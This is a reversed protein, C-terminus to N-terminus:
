YHGISLSISDSTDPLCSLQWDCHPIGSAVRHEHDAIQSNALQGEGRGLFQWARLLTNANWKTMSTQSHTGAKQSQHLEIKSRDSPSLGMKSLGQMLLSFETKSVSDRGGKRIQAMTVCCLEVLWRDSCMLVGVPVMRALERWAAREAKNLHNPPDGLARPPKPEKLRGVYRGPNRKLAGSLSLAAFSKRPMPM